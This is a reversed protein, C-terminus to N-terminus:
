FDSVTLNKDWIVKRNLQNEMLQIYLNIPPLGVTARIEDVKDANEVPWVYTTDEGDDTKKSITQTGYKQPKQMRMLIRDELTAVDSKQIDGQDAKEKVLDFYKEQFSLNAHQIVYFIARNACDTLEGPWGHNSLLNSVYMQNNADIGNMEAIIAAIDPSQKQIADMLKLRIQQDENGIRCLEADIEKLDYTQAFLTSMGLSLFILTLIKNMM